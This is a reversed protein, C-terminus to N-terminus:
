NRARPPELRRLAGRDRRDEKREIKADERLTRVGRGDKGERDRGRPLETRERKGVAKMEKRERLMVMRYTPHTKAFMKEADEYTLEPNHAIAANFFEEFEACVMESENTHTLAELDSNRILITDDGPNWGYKDLVQDIEYNTKPFGALTYTVVDRFQEVTYRRGSKPFYTWASGEERALNVWTPNRQRRSM